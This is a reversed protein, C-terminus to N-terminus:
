RQLHCDRFKRTHAETCNRKEETARNLNRSALVTLHQLYSGELALARWALLPHGFEVDHGPVARRRGAVAAGLGAAHPLLAADASLEADHRGPGALGLRWIAALRSM